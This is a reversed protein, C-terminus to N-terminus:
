NQGLIALIAMKYFILNSQSHRLFSSWYRTCLWMLFFFFFSEKENKNQFGHSSWTLWPEIMTERIRLRLCMGPAEAVFQKVDWAQNKTSREPFVWTSVHISWPGAGQVEGMWQKAGRTGQGVIDKKGDEMVWMGVRPDLNPQPAGMRRTFVSKARVM